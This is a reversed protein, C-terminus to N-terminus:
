HSISLTMIKSKPGPLPRSGPPLQDRDHQKKKLHAVYLALAAIVLVLLVAM